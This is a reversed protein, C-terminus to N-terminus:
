AWPGSRAFVRAAECVKEPGGVEALAELPTDGNLFTQRKRLFLAQGMCGGHSLFVRDLAHVVRTWDLGPNARETAVLVKESAGLSRVLRRAAWQDLQKDAIEVV